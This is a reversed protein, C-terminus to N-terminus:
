KSEYDLMLLYSTCLQKRFHQLAFSAEQLDRKELSKIHQSFVAGSALGTSVFALLGTGLAKVPQRKYLLLAMTSGCALTVALRGM